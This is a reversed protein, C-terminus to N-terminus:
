INRDKKDKGYVTLVAVILNQVGDTMFAVGVLRMIFLSSEFPKILAAVGIAAAAIGGILLLWWKSVGFAKAEYANQVTFVSNVIVFVSIIISMLSSFRTPSVLMLVGLVGTLIGLALDFQFALRYLDGSFYGYLKAAGTLLLVAGVARCLVIVSLDPKIIFVCGLLFALLSTFIYAKKAIQVRKM